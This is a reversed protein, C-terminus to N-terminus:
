GHRGGKAAFKALILDVGMRLYVQQPVHTKASLARLLEAQKPELYLSLYEKKLRAKSNRLNMTGM